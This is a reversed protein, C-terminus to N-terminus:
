DLKLLLEMGTDRAAIRDFTVTKSCGAAHASVAILCDAFDAKSNRYISLAQHVLSEREVVVDLSRLLSEVIRAIGDRQFKYLFRLAWVLEVLAILGLWGPEQPSLADLVEEAVRTQSPDDKVFYRILVNTDLGIM